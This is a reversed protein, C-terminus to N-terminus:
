TMIEFCFGEQIWWRPDRSEKWFRGFWKLQGFLLLFCYFCEFSVFTYVNDFPFYCDTM